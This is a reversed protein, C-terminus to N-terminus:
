FTNTYGKKCALMECLAECVGMSSGRLLKGFEEFFSSSSVAPIEYLSSIFCFNNKSELFHFFSLM